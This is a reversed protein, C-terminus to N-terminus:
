YFNTQFDSNTTKGNGGGIASTDGNAQNDLGGAVITYAGAASNSRGGTISASDGSLSNDFGAVLGGFSSYSHKDGIVLNHSGSRLDGDNDNYGIILNGLGNLTQTDGSGSLINLNAGVFSIEHNNIDVSLYDMLGNLETIDTSQLYDTEITNIRSDLYGIDVGNTSIDNANNQIADTNNQVDAALAYGQDSAWTELESSSMYQQNLIWAGTVYDGLAASTVYDSEINDVRNTLLPLAGQAEEVRETLLTLNENLLTMTEPVNVGGLLLELGEVQTKLSENETTLTQNASELTSIRTELAALKGEIGQVDSELEENGCGILMLGVIISSYM